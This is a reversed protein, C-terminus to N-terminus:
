KAPDHVAHASPVYLSATPDAVHVSQEDPV